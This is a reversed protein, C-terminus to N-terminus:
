GSPVPDQLWRVMDSLTTTEDIRDMIDLNPVRYTDQVAEVFEVIKISDGGLELVPVDFNPEQEVIKKFLRIV